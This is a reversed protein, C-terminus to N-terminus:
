ILGLCTHKMIRYIDRCILLNGTMHIDGCEVNLIDSFNDKVVFNESSVYDCNDTETILDVFSHRRNYAGEQINMKNTMTIPM